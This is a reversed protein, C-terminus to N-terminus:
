GICLWTIIAGTVNGIVVSAAAIVAVHSHWLVAVKGVLGLRGGEGDLLRDHKEVTARLDHHAAHENM